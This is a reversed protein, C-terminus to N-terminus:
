DGYLARAIDAVTRDAPAGQCGKDLSVRAAAIIREPSANDPLRQEVRAVELDTVVVTTVALQEGDTLDPWEGCDYGAQGAELAQREHEAAARAIRQAEAWARRQEEARVRDPEREWELIAGSSVPRGSADLYQFHTAADVVDAVVMFGPAAAPYRYRGDSTLIDVARIAPDSVRGLLQPDSVIGVEVSGAGTGIVEVEVPADDPDGWFALGPFLAVGQGGFPLEDILDAPVQLEGLAVSCVAL